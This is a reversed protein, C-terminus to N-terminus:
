QGCREHLLRFEESYTLRSAVLVEDALEAPIWRSAGCVCQLLEGRAGGAGDPPASSSRVAAGAPPASRPDTPWPPSMTM